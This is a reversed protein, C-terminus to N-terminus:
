LHPLHSRIKSPTASANSNKNPDNSNHFERDNVTFSDALKKHDIFKKQIIRSKVPEKDVKLSALVANHDSFGPLEITHTIDAHPISQTIIHDILKNSKGRTVEENIVKADYSNLISKYDKSHPSDEFLNINTDGALIKSEISNDNLENELDMMFDDINSNSPPRYYSIVKIWKSKVRIKFSLKEFKDARSDISLLPLDNCIYAAIGGGVVTQNKHCKKRSVQILNYGNLNYIKFDGLSDDVFWTENVLIVDFRIKLESVIRLFSQFKEVSCISQANM